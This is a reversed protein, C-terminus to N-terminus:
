AVTKLVHDRPSAPRDVLAAASDPAPRVRDDAPGRTSGPFAKNELFGTGVMVQARLRRGASGPGMYNIRPDPRTGQEDHELAALSHFEASIVRRIAMRQGGSGAPASNLRSSISSPPSEGSARMLGIARGPIPIPIPISTTARASSYESDPTASRAAQWATSTSAGSEDVGGSSSAASLRVLSTGSPRRGSVGFDM